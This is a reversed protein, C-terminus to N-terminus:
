NEQEALHYREKRRTLVGRKKWMQWIMPRLRDASAEPWWKRRIAEVIEMQTPPNGLRNAERVAWVIMESNTPLGNPKVGYDVRIENGPESSVAGIQALREVRGYIGFLEKAGDIRSKEAELDALEARVSEIRADVEAERKLITTENLIREM